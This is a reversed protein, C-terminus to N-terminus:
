PALVNQPFQGLVNGPPAYQCVVYVATYINGGFNKEGTAAGCGVQTTGKWVVQTFHGTKGSFGPNAYDYDAVENYWSGVAQSAVAAASPPAGTTFTAFLNEGNNTNSHKFEGTSALTEAYAQASANLAASQTLGPAHHTSRYTNHESVSQSQFTGLDSIGQSMAVGANLGGLVTASALSTLALELLKPQHM